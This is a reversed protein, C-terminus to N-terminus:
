QVLSVSLYAILCATLIMHSKCYDVIDKVAKTVAPNHHALFYVILSCQVIFSSAFYKRAEWSLLIPPVIVVWSIVCLFFIFKQFKNTEAKIAAKWVCLLVAYVPLAVFLMSMLAKIGNGWEGFYIRHIERFLQAPTTNFEILWENIFRERTEAELTGAYRAFYYDLLEERSAFHLFSESFTGWVALGAASLYTAGCLIGNVVKQRRMHFEQLLIISILVVGYFVSVINFMISLACFVPALFRLYKNQSCCVAFLVLTWCLKDLKIDMYQERFSTPLVCMVAILFVIVFLVDRDASKKLYTTIAKGICLSAAIWLLVSLVIVVNRALDDTIREFFWSLIEGLLGRAHYGHKYTYLYHILYYGYPAEIKGGAILAALPIGLLFLPILYYLFSKQSLNTLYKKM